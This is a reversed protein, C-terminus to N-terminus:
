GGLDIVKVIGEAGVATRRFNSLLFDTVESAQYADEPIETSSTLAVPYYPMALVPGEEDDFRYLSTEPAWSKGKSRLMAAADHEIENAGRGTESEVKYVVASDPPRWAIRTRGFYWRWDSFTGDLRGSKYLEPFAQRHRM